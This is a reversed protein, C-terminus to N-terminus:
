LSAKLAEHCKKKFVGASKNARKVYAEDNFQLENNTQKMCCLEQLSDNGLIDAYKKKLEALKTQPM